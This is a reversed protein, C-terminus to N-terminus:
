VKASKLLDRAVDAVTRATRRDVTPGFHPHANWRLAFARVDMMGIYVGVVDLGMRITEYCAARDKGGVNHFVFEDRDVVAEVVRFAGTEVSEVARRIAGIAHICELRYATVSQGSGDGGGGSREFDVSSLEGVRCGDFYSRLKLGAALRRTGSGDSDAGRVSRSEPDVLVRRANLWEFAAGDVGRATALGREREIKAKADRRASAEAAKAAQKKSLPAPAAPKEVRPFMRDRDVSQAQALPQAIFWDDKL